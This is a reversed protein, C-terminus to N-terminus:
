RLASELRERSRIYEAVGAPGAYLIAIRAVITFVLVAAAETSGLLM